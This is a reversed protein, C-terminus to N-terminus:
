SDLIASALKEDTVLGTILGAAAVARVATAKSAGGAVGIVRPALVLQEPSIAICRRHFEPDVLEGRRGVLVGAVDAVCGASMLRDVEDPPLVDRVQSNPPVWNGISVAATTVSDFFQMARKIDPHRRLNQATAVDHLFPSFIPYVQGGAREVVDRVLETPSAGLDGAVLGTLQVVTLRPLREIQAATTALTRGWTLGLVEGARVTSSIHQAAVQGIHQRMSEVSGESRVVICEEIGLLQRLRESLVADPLGRDNISITVVGEARARDLIRGVKFRSIGLEDAIKTRPIDDEFYLRAVRAMLARDSLDGRDDNSVQAIM